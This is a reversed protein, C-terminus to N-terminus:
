KTLGRTVISSPQATSSLQAATHSLLGIIEIPHLGLRFMGNVAAELLDVSATYSFPPKAM